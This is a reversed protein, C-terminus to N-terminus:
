AVNAGPVSGGDMTLADSGGVAPVGLIPLKIVRGGLAAGKGLMAEIVLAVRGGSVRVSTTCGPLHPGGGLIPCDGAIM